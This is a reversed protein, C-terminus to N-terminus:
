QVTLIWLIGEVHGKQLLRHRWSVPPPPRWAPQVFCIEGLIQFGETLLSCGEEVAAAWGCGTQSAGLLELGAAGVVAAEALAEGAVFWGASCV